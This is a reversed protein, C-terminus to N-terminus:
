FILYFFFSYLSVPYPFISHFHSVYSLFLCFHFYCFHPLLLSCLLSFLVFLSIVSYPSSLHFHPLSFTSVFFFHFYFTCHFTSFFKLFYFLLMIQPIQTSFCSSFPRFFTLSFFFSSICFLFYFILLPFYFFPLLSSILNSLFSPYFSSFCFPLFPSFFPFLISLFSTSFSVRPNIYRQNSCRGDSESRIRCQSVSVRETWIVVPFAALSMRLLCLFFYCHRYCCLGIFCLIFTM